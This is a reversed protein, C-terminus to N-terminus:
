EEWNIKGFGSVEASRTAPNGFVTVSGMGHLHMNAVKRAYVKINGFGNLYATVNDAKLETADLGAVGNIKGVLERAQGALTVHGAGPANVEIRDCEGDNVNVSGVGTSHIMVQRYHTNVSVSGTGTVNLLLNDGSFGDIQANGIGSSTFQSLNPLTLDVRYVGGGGDIHLTDGAAHIQLDERNGHVVLAPTAGQHLQLFATGELFVKSVNADIPHDDDTRDSASAMASMALALVTCLATNWFYQKM